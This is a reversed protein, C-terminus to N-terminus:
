TSAGFTGNADVTGTGASSPVGTCDFSGSMSDSSFAKLTVTCEGSTSAYTTGNSIITVSNRTSRGTVNDGVQPINIDVALTTSSSTWKAKIEPYLSVGIGIAKFSQQNLTESAGAVTIQAQHGAGTATGGGSGSSKPGSKSAFLAVVAVVVVVVLVGTAIWVRRSRRQEVAPPAPFGISVPDIEAAAPDLEQYRRWADARGAATAPFREVPEGPASEDWIGYFTAAFGFVHRGGQHIVGLRQDGVMARQHGTTTVPQTQEATSM